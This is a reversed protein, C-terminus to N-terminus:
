NNQYCTDLRQIDDATYDLEILTDFREQESFKSLYEYLPKEMARKSADKFIPFCAKCFAVLEEDLITLTLTRDELMNITNEPFGLRHGYSFLELLNSEDLQEFRASYIFNCLEQVVSFNCGQIELTPIDEHLASEKMRETEDFNSNLLVNFFMSRESLFHKHCLIAETSEVFFVEELYNKIKIQVDCLSRQLREFKSIAEYNNHFICGKLDNKFQSDSEKMAVKIDKTLYDKFMDVLTYMKLTEMWDCYETRQVFVGLNELKMFKKQNETKLLCGTYIWVMLNDFQSKTLGVQGLDVVQLEERKLFERIERDSDPILNEIAQLDDQPRQYNKKENAIEMQKKIEKIKKNYVDVMLVEKNMSDFYKKIERNTKLDVVKLDESTLITSVKMPIPREKNVLAFYLLMPWRKLIIWWNCYYITDEEDKGFRIRITLDCEDPKETGYIVRKAMKMMFPDLSKFQDQEYMQEIEEDEEEETKKQAKKVQTPGGYKNYVKLLHRVPLSLANWYCRAFKDDRAGLDSLYKVVQLHGCLCAYYLPTNGYRDPRDLDSTKIISRIKNLDGVKCFSYIDSMPSLPSGLGSTKHQQLM